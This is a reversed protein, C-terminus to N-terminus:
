FLGKNIARIVAQLFCQLVEVQVFFSHSGSNVKVNFVTHSALENWLEVVMMM